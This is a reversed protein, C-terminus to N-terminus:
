GAMEDESEQKEKWAGKSVQNVRVDLEHFSLVPSPIGVADVGGERRPPM